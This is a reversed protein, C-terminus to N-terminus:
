KMLLILELNLKYTKFVEGMEEKQKTGMKEKGQMWKRRESMLVPLCSLSSKIAKASNALLLISQSTIKLFQPSLKIESSSSKFHFLHSFSCWIKYIRILNRLRKWLMIHNTLPWRKHAASTMLWSLSFHRNLHKIMQRWFIHNEGKKSDCFKYAIILQIGM